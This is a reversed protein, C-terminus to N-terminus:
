SSEKEIHMVVPEGTYPCNAYASFDTAPRILFHFALQVHNGGCRACGQIDFLVPPKWKLIYEDPTMGDDAKPAEKITGLGGCRRCSVWRKPESDCLGEHDWIGREGKCIPCTVENM